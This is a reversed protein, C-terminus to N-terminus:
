RMLSAIRDHNLIYSINNSRLACSTVEERFITADDVVVDDGINLHPLKLRARLLSATQEYGHSELYELILYGATQNLPMHGQEMAAGVIFGCPSGHFGVFFIDQTELDRHLTSVQVFIECVVCLTSHIEPIAEVCWKTPVL